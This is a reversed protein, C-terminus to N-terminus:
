SAASGTGDDEEFFEIPRAPAGVALCRPPLPKTVVSNAGVMTRTGVSALVTSKAMVAAGDGIVVPRFDYGQDVIDRAPDRFRHSGDVVLADQAFLCRRGIDISTSCQIVCNYTFITGDGITVRGGDSIECVFGRRFEVGRGAVFTGAGPIRLTFGPGLRVPGLFQVHCHRHTAYVALRRLDSGLRAGLDFRARWPLRRLWGQEM